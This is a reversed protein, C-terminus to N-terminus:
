PAMSALADAIEQFTRTKQTSIDQEIFASFEAFTISRPTNNPGAVTIDQERVAYSLLALAYWRAAQEGDLFVVRGGYEKFLQLKKNTAEWTPPPPFPCRADRIYVARGAPEEELFAVGRALCAGVAAHHQEVDILFIVPVPAAGAPTTRALHVTTTVDIYKEQGSEAPMCKPAGYRVYLELARRLRGRDPQYREFDRMIAQYQSAFAEQLKQRPSVPPLPEEDLIQRLRQNALTIVRRPSYLGLHFTKLLEESDFPFLPEAQENGPVAGLRRRVIALAQEPTCGRLEFKNTELRSSVHQNLKHRFKEEWQM